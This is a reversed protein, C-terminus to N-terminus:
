GRTTVLAQTEGIRITTTATLDMAEQGSAGGGAWEIVWHSTATVTYANGPHGVSTQTYTHGCDPSPSAGYSDAYPTGATACVVTSGDGLNWTVRSVHATATVTVGGAAASASSPGFTTATPGDVWMWVPLGVLGVSAPDDEPAIGIDVASLNMSAIAEQALAAPDPGAPPAASWFAYATSFGVASVDPICSYIAGETNGEWLRSTTPPQPDLPRIYCSKANSWSGLPGSCPVVSGSLRSTCGSAAATGRTSRGDGAAAEDNGPASVSILCRGTRPDVKQCSGGVPGAAQAPTVLSPAGVPLLTILVLAAGAMLGPRTLWRM